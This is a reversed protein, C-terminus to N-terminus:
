NCINCIGIQAQPKFHPNEMAAGADITVGLFKVEEAPSISISSNSIPHLSSASRPGFYLYSTKGVNLSLKNCSFWSTISSMVGRTRSEVEAYTKGGVLITNKGEIM